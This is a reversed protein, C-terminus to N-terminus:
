KCNKKLETINSEIEDLAKKITNITGSPIGTIMKDMERSIEGSVKSWLREGKPTFAICHSRRDKGAVRKVFGRKVISDIFRSCAPPKLGLIRGIRAQNPWENKRRKMWNMVSYM